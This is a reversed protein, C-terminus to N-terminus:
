LAERGSWHKDLTVRQTEIQKGVSPTQSFNIVFGAKHCVIRATGRSEQSM